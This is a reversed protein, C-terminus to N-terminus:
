KLPTAGLAGITGIAHRALDLAALSRLHSAKAATREEPKWASKRDISTLTAMVGAQLKDIEAVAEAPTLTPVQFLRESM